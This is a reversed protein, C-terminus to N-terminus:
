APMKLDMFVLDINENNRVVDVAESGNWAKIVNCKLPKLLITILEMSTKDDEVVLIQKSHLNPLKINRDGVIESEMRATITSVPVNFVFVSGEGVKTSVEIHAGM